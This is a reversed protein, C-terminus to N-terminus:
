RSLTKYPQYSKYTTNDPIGFWTFDGQNCEYEVCAARAQAEQMGLLKVLEPNSVLQAAARGSAKYTVYRKFVSPLDEYNFKWTIDVEIAEKWDSTHNYNDYLLLVDAWVGVGRRISTDYTRNTQGNTVDMRLVNKPIPIKGEGLQHAGGDGWHEYRYSPEMPYHEERNFVWGENQVDTSCEQLINYVFSIEPNIFTLDDGQKEFLRSVPAQGIAGLISNVSSLETETQFITPTTM